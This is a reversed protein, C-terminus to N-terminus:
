RALRQFINKAVQYAKDYRQLLKGQRILKAEFAARERKPLRSAVYQFANYCKRCLGRRSSPSDCCLCVKAEVKDKVFRKANMAVSVDLVFIENM